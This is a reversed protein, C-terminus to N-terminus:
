AMLARALVNGVFRGNENIRITRDDIDVLAAHERLQAEYRHLPDIGWRAAFSERDLGGSLRLGLIAAEEVRQDHDLQEHDDYPDPSKAVYAQPSRVNWWRRGARHGHAGAGFALYDDGRWYVLNHRCWSEDTAWNSLEYNDFGALGLIECAAEYRDAQLDDDPAPFSGQEIWTALPTSPEVTLAYASVHDVGTALVDELSRQWEVGTEGPTGFILDANIRKFGAARAAGLAALGTRSDHVRGLQKLIAESTSQLGISVRNFGAVLLQEFISEDVTEPNAEVTIEVDQSLTFRQKIAGLIRALESPPLQTPTGGGFFVTDIQRDEDGSRIEDVLADVYPGMLDDMGAYANFDCYACRVICFPIHVYLGVAPVKGPACPLNM